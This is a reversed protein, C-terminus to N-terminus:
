ARRHTFLQLILLSLPAPAFQSIEPHLLFENGGGVPRQCHFCASKEAWSYASVEGDTTKISKRNAIELNVPYKQRKMTQTPSKM